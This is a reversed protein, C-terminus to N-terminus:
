GAVAGLDALVGHAVASGIALGNSPTTGPMAGGNDRATVLFLVFFGLAELLRGIKCAAGDYDSAQDDCQHTAVLIIGATFVSLAVIFVIAAIVGPAGGRHTALGTDELKRVHRVSERVAALAGHLVVDEPRAGSGAAAPAAGDLYAPEGREVADALVEFRGRTLLELVGSPRAPRSGTEVDGRVARGDFTGEVVLHSGDVSVRADLAGLSEDLGQLLTDDVGARRLAERGEGSASAVAWLDAVRVSGASAVADRWSAALPELAGGRRLTRVLDLATVSVTRVDALAERGHVLVEGDIPSTVDPSGSRERAAKFTRAQALYNRYGQLRAAAELAGRADRVAAATHMAARGSSLRADRRLAAAFAAARDIAPSSTNM